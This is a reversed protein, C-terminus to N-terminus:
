VHYFLWFSSQPRRFHIFIFIMLIWLEYSFPVIMSFFIFIQLNKKLIDINCSSDGGERDMNIIVWALTMIVMVGATCKRTSKYKSFYFLIPNQYRTASPLHSFTKSTEYNCLVMVHILSTRIVCHESVIQEMDEQQEKVKMKMNYSQSLIYFKKIICQCGYGLNLRCLTFIDYKEYWAM